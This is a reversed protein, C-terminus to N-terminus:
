ANNSSVGGKLQRSAATSTNSYISLDIAEVDWIDRANKKYVLLLKSYVIM